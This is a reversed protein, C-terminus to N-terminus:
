RLFLKPIVELKKYHTILSELEIRTFRKEQYKLAKLEQLIGHGYDLELHDAFEDQNGYLYLNCRAEILTTAQRLKKGTSEGAV